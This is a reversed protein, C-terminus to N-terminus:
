RYNRDEVAQLCEVLELGLKKQESTFVNLVLERYAEQKMDEWYGGEKFDNEDLYSCCGLFESGKCGEFNGIVEVTCWAWSDGSDIRDLVRKELDKGLELGDSFHDLVPVDEWHTEISFSVEELKPLYM